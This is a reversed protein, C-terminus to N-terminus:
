FINRLHLLGFLLSPRRHGRRPGPARSCALILRPLEEYIPAATRQAGAGYGFTTGKALYEAHTALPPGDGRLCRWWSLPVV